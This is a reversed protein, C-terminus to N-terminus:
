FALDKTDRTIDRSKNKLTVRRDDRSTIFFTFIIQGIRDRITQM